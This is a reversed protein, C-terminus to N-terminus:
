RDGKRLRPTTVNRCIYQKEFGLTVTGFGIAFYVRWAERRKRFVTSMHFYSIVQWRRRFESPAARSQVSSSKGHRWWWGMALLVLVVSEPRHKKAQRSTWSTLLHITHHAPTRRPTRKRRVARQCSPAVVHASVPGGGPLNCEDSSFFCDEWGKWRSFPPKHRM